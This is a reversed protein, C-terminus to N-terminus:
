KRGLILFYQSPLFDPEGVLKLGTADAIKLFEERALRRPVPPGQPTVKKQFDINVLRGGKKLSPLLKKLYAPGGEIFMFTNAIFVLDCSEAALKPDDPAALITTVNKLGAESVHAKLQDLLRPQIDIALVKGGEGVARALRLTFYGSGAGVDCVTQGATIKLAALVQDPKQWVARGPNDLRNALEDLTRPPDARAVSAFAFLILSARVWKM